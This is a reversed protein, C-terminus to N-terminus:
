RAVNLYMEKNRKSKFGYKLEYLKRNREETVGCRIRKKNKGKAWSILGNFMLKSFRFGKRGHAQWLWVDRKRTYAILVAQIIDKEIAVLCLTDNPNEKLRQHLKWGMDIPNQDTPVFWSVLWLSAWEYDKCNWIRV